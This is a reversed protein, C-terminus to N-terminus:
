SKPSVGIFRCRERFAAIEDDLGPICHSVPTLIGEHEVLPNIYRAKNPGYFEAEDKPAYVFPHRPTLRALLADIQDDHAARIKELVVADTTFLDTEAICGIALGRKIATALLFWAGHSDASVYGFRCVNMSLTCLLAAVRRDEFYFQGDRLKASAIILEIVERPALGLMYGDRMFYDWRDFSLEPTRNDLLYYSSKDLVKAIDMGFEACIAPIESRMVVQHLFRDHYEQNDDGMVFDIVHSFATHPVDHLLCAVQEELPRDFRHALYWVGFSHEFRDGDWRPEIFHTAGDQSIAKLRQLPASAILRQILPHEVTVAGYIRDTIQM